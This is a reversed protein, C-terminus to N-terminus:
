SNIVSEEGLPLTNNFKVNQLFETSKRAEKGIIVFYLGKNLNWKKRM